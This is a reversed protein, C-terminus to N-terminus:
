GADVRLFSRIVVIESPHEERDYNGLRRGTGAAFWSALMESQRVRPCLLVEDQGSYSVLM